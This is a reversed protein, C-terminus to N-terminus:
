FHKVFFHTDLPMRPFVAPLAAQEVAVFGNKEYFRIAAEFRVITGLYLSAFGHQAAWTELTNLLQQAVGKEKGRFGAHVFMKRICGIGGGCDILAITGVVNQDALAVWFNGNKQQYFDPIASLDPQDALTIPVNFENRQINIILQIVSETHQTEFPVIHFM